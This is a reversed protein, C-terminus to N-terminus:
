IGQDKSRSPVFATAREERFLEGRSSLRAFGVHDVMAILLETASALLHRHQKYEDSYRRVTGTEGSSILLHTNSHISFTSSERM